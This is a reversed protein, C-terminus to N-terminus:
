RGISSRGKRINIETASISSTSLFNNVEGETTANELSEQTLGSINTTSDAACSVVKGDLNDSCQKSNKMRKLRYYLNFRTVARFGNQNYKKVIKDVVGYGIKGSNSGIERLLEKFAEDQQAKQYSAMVRKRVSVNEMREGRSPRASSSRTVPM